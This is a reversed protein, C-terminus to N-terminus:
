FRIAFGFSVMPTARTGLPGSAVPPGIATSLARANGYPVILESLGFRLIGPGVYREITGGLDFAPFNNRTVIADASDQSFHIFGTRASAFFGLDGARQGVRLGFLGNTQGITQSTLQTGTFASVNHERYTLQTDLAFHEDFNYHFRAGLGGGWVGVGDMYTFDTQVGVEFKPVEEYHLLQASVGSPVLLSVGLFCWSWRM